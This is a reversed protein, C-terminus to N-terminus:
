IGGLLLQARKNVLLAVESVWTQMKQNIIIEGLRHCTTTPGEFSSLLRDARQLRDGCGQPSATGLPRINDRCREAGCVPSRSGSFWLGM